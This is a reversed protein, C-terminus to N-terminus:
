LLHWGVECGFQFSLAHLQLKIVFAHHVSMEAMTSHRHGCAIVIAIFTTVAIVTIVIICYSLSAPSSPSSINHNHGQHHQHKHHKHHEHQKHGFLGHPSQLGCMKCRHVWCDKVSISGPGLTPLRSLIALLWAFSHRVELPVQLCGSRAHLFDSGDENM